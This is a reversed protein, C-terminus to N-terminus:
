VLTHEVEIKKRFIAFQEHISPNCLECNMMEFIAKFENNLKSKQIYANIIKLDVHKPFLDIADKIEIALLRYWKKKIKQSDATSQYIQNLQEEIKQLKQKQALWSRAVIDVGIQGKSSSRHNISQKKSMSVGSPHSLIGSKKTRVTEYVNAQISSKDHTLNDQSINGFSNEENQKQQAVM